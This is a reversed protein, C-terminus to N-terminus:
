GPDNGDLRPERDRFRRMVPVKFTQNPLASRSGEPIPSTPPRISISQQASRSRSLGPGLKVEDSLGLASLMPSYSRSTSSAPPHSFSSVHLLIAFEETANTLQSMKVRFDNSTTGGYPKIASIIEVVIKVFINAEERLARKDVSPDGDKLAHIMDSLSKTSLRAKTLSERMDSRVELMDSLHGEVMDWVFPAIDIAAQVAQIAEKDVQIKSTSQAETYTTRSATLVPSSSTSSAQLSALSGSRSHNTKSSEAISTSSTSASVIVSSTPSPSQVTLTMPSLTVQRKPARLISKTSSSAVSRPMTPLPVDYSPLAKGIEVDKSSFSGAHRRATHTRGATSRLSVLPQTSSDSPISTSTSTSHSDPGGVLSGFNSPPSASPFPKTHLLLKISDIQPLISQWALAIEAAAGYLTLVLSRLYRVDDANIIVKLQLSLVGVTKGFVAVTDRCSEIVARCVSAPPVSKRSLADFRDLSNIFQMMDASAPHLVKKLVSSLRDDVANLTYHELTHYIQCVAFLISRATDILNLLPTPINSASTPLTSLRRFYSNREFAMSPVARTPSTQPGTEKGQAKNIHRSASNLSSGSDQRQSMPSPYEDVAIAKGNLLPAPSRDACEPNKKSFNLKATRLDPMSKKGISRSRGPKQDDGAYSANRGHLQQREIMGDVLADQAPFSDSEAPSPLYSELSHTPSTETSYSQLIGLHLPPPRDRSDYQSAPSGVSDTISSVSFNSDISFSRAHPTVGEDFESETLSLSGWAGYSDEIRSSDLEGFGSDDHSRSVGSCEIDVWRQVSRIWNNMSEPNGTSDIREMVSKPPWEIPNREVELFTLKKFKVLYTPLRTLKNRTLCLVKLNVLNGPQSPLRKIKNHSIDLTDLSHMLTLVDPFVSFCNGKLNLYRLRSLLAFEMPITTLRNYNLAIRQVRSEDEPPEMGITALEEAAAGGIDTLNKKTFVLTAGKDPSYHLADQILSHSLSTSVSLFSGKKSITPSRSVSRDVDLSPMFAPM